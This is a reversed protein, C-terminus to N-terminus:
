EPIEREVILRFNVRQTGDIHNTFIGNETIEVVNWTIGDIVITKPGASM